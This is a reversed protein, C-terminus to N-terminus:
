INRIKEMTLEYQKGHRLALIKGQGCQKSVAKIIDEARVENVNDVNVIVTAEKLNNWELFKERAKTRESELEYDIEWGLIMQLIHREAWDLTM